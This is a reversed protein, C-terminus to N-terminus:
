KSESRYQQVSTVMFVRSSAAGCAICLAEIKKGISYGDVNYIAVVCNRLGSTVSHIVDEMDM